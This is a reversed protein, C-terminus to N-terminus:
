PKKGYPFSIEGILENGAFRWGAQRLKKSPVIYFDNDLGEIKKLIFNVLTTAHPNKIGKDEWTTVSLTKYLPYRGTILNEQVHPVHGDIKLVKVKGRNKYFKEAFWLAVHGIAGKNSAVISIMDPITGVELLDPSFFEDNDLLLRWHGPRKKCHLRAVPQVPINYGKKEDSGILESWRGIEGTFLDRTEKLTINEIPNDPHVIIAIPTVGLTHFTLGPLRDTRDPPCCFGGIDVKKRYLLGASNGCTGDYSVITLAFKEAFKKIEDKIVRGTQQDLNLVIDANRNNSDYTVPRSRWEPTMEITEAPNYSFPKGGAPDNDAHLLEERTLLFAITFLVILFVRYSKIM